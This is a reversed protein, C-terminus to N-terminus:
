KWSLYKVKSGKKLTVTDSEVIMFGDSVALSAIDASGNSRVPKVLTRNREMITNILVFHKKGTKKKYDDALVGEHLEVGCNKDGRMKCLAPRIFIFYCLYGSIPNGPVGFVVKAGKRGFFLPKGPKINVKHFLKKVGVKALAAPVLDYDGMSVGGSVILVESKLGKLIASSLDGIKDKVIGLYNRKCGDEKLLATFMPGNGNFIRNKELRKGVPTLEGGTNLVSVAPTHLVKVFKRGISSLLAVHSVRLSTGKTLIKQGAKLDEGKICINDKVKANRFIEVLKGLQRTDEVMVICDTGKPLPAGTFIKVCEFKKIRRRFDKGAEVVGICKLKGTRNKVDSAKCAYGDVASKNFPPLAYESFVDENLVKGISDAVLVDKGNLPKVSNLIMRIAKEYNIM